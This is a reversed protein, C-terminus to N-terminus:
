ASDTPIILQQLTVDYKKNIRSETSFYVIAYSIVALGLLSGIIILTLKFAKKVM